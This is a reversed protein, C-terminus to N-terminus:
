RLHNITAPVYFLFLAEMSAQIVNRMFLQFLVNSCLQHHRLVRMKKKKERGPLQSGFKNRLFLFAVFIISILQIPNHCGALYIVLM